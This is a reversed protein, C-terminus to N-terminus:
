GRADRGPVGFLEGLSIPYRRRLGRVVVASATTYAALSALAAGLIGITPLLVPLLALTVVLAVLEARSALWPEGM